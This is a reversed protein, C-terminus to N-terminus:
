KVSRRKGNKLLDYCGFVVATVSVLLGMAKLVASFARDAKSVPPLIRLGYVDTVANVNKSGKVAVTAYYEGAASPASDLAVTKGGDIRYYSVSYEVFNPQVSIQLPKPSGDETYVFSEGSIVPTLKEITIYCYSVVFGYLATNEPSASILYTGCERLPLSVAAGATGDKYEYAKYVVDIGSPTLKAAPPYIGEATYTFSLDAMEVKPTLKDIIIRGSGIVTDLVFCSAVYDGPETPLDATYAGMTGNAYLHSYRLETEVGAINTHYKPPQYPSAYVANISEVTATFDKPVSLLADEPSLPTGAREAIEYVLYKGACSLNPDINLVDIRVLYKGIDKPVSVATGEDEYDKIVRYSVSLEVMDAAWSPSVSYRVPNEMATHAVVTESVSISVRAKEITLTATDSAAPHAATEDLYARVTYTGADIVPISVMDGNKDRVEYKLEGKYASARATPYYGEPTYSVVTNEITVSLGGEASFVPLICTFIIAICFCIFLASRKVM